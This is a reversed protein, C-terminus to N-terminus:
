FAEDASAAAKIADAVAKKDRAAAYEKASDSVVFNTSPADVSWNGSLEVRRTPSKKPTMVGDKLWETEVEDTLTVFGNVIVSGARIWQATANPVFAWLRFGDLKQFHIVTMEPTQKNSPDWAVFLEMAQRIGILLSEKAKELVANGSKRIYTM